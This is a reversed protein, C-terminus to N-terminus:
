KQTKKKRNSIQTFIKNKDSSKPPIVQTQQNQQKDICIHPSPNLKKINNMKM